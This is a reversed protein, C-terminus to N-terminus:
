AIIRKPSGSGLGHAFVDSLSPALHFFGHTCVAEASLCPNSSEANEWPLSWKRSMLAASLAATSALPGGSGRNRSTIWYQSKRGSDVRWVSASYRQAATGSEQIGLSGAGRRELRPRVGPCCSRLVVSMNVRTGLCSAECESVRLMATLVAVDRFGPRRLGAAGAIGIGGSDGCSRTRTRSVTGMGRAAAATSFAFNSAHGSHRETTASKKAVMPGYRRAGGFSSAGAAQTRIM